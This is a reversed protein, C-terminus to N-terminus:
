DEPAKGNIYQWLRSLEGVRMSEVRDVNAKTANVYPVKLGKTGDDRGVVQDVAETAGRERSIVLDENVTCEADMFANHELVMGTHRDFPFMTDLYHQNFQHGQTGMQEFVRGMFRSDVHEPSKTFNLVGRYINFVIVILYYIM